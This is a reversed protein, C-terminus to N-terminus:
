RFGSLSTVIFFGAFRIKYQSGLIRQRRNATNM